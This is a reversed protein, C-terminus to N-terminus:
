EKHIGDAKLVLHAAKGQEGFSGLKSGDLEGEVSAANDLDLLFSNEAKWEVIDGAVLDYEQSIAGDITIHIKGDSIAKLRLVIGQSEPSNSRTEPPAVPDSKPIAEGQIKDMSRDTAPAPPTDLRSNQEQRSGRQVPKLLSYGAALALILSAVIILGLRQSPPAIRKRPPLSHSEPAAEVAASPDTELLSLAEEPSLGLHAAYLRIFGRIYAQSPLKAATGEEIAELYSKGIRTINAVDDLTEGKAERASKLWAGVNGIGADGHVGDKDIRSTKM